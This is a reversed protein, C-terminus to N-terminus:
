PILGDATVQFSALPVETAMLSSAVIKHKIYPHLKLANRNNRVTIEQWINMFSNASLGSLMIALTNIQNDTLDSYLLGNAKRSRGVLHLTFLGFSHDNLSLVENVYGNNFVDDIIKNFDPNSM